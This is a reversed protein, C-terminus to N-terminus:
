YMSDIRFGSGNKKAKLHVDNKVQITGMINQKFAEKAVHKM